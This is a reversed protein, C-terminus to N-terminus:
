FANADGNTSKDADSIAVGNAVIFTASITNALSINITSEIASFKADSATNTYTPTDGNALTFANADRNTPEDADSIAVGNTIIFTTSITNALFIYLTSGIASIVRYTINNVNPVSDSCVFPMPDTGFETESRSSIRYTRGASFDSAQARENAQGDAQWAPDRGERGRVM